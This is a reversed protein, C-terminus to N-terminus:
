HMKRQTIVSRITRLCGLPFYCNAACYAGHYRVWHVRAKTYMALFKLFRSYKSDGMVYRIIIVPRHNMIRFFKDGLGGCGSHAGGCLDCIRRGTRLHCSRNRVNKFYLCAVLTCLQACTILSSGRLIQSATPFQRPFTNNHCRTFRQERFSQVIRSSTTDAM